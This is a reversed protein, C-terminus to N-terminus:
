VSTPGDCKKVSHDGDALQESSATAPAPGCLKLGQEAHMVVVSGLDAVVVHTGRFV